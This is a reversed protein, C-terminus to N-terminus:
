QVKNSKKQLRSIKRGATKAHLIGKQSMKDIFSITKNLVAEKDDANSEIASDCKKIQNRMASRYQSNVKNREIALQARKKSSKINAM